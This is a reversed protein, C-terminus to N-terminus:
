EVCSQKSTLHISSGKRKQVSKINMGYIDKFKGQNLIFGLLSCCLLSFYSGIIDYFDFISMPTLVCMKAALVIASYDPAFVPAVQKYM